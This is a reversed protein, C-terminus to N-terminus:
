AHQKQKLLRVFYVGFLIVVLVIYVIMFWDNLTLKNKEEEIREKMLDSDIRDVRISVHSHDERMEKLMWKMEERFEDLQKQVPVAKVPKSKFPM